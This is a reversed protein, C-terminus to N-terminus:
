NREHNDGTLRCRDCLELSYISTELAACLINVLVYKQVLLKLIAQEIGNAIAKEIDLKETDIEKCIQAENLKEISDLLEALHKNKLINNKGISISTELIDKDIMTM